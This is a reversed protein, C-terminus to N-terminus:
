NIEKAIGWPSSNSYVAAPRSVRVEEVEIVVKPLKRKGSPAKIKRTVPIDRSYHPRSRGRASSKKM